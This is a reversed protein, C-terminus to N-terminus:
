DVTILYLNWTIAGFRSYPGLSPEWHPDLAIAYQLVTAKIQDKYPNNSCRSTRVQHVAYPTKQQPLSVGREIRDENSSTRQVGVQSRSQTEASFFFVRTAKKMERKRASTTIWGKQLNKSSTLEMGRADECSPATRAYTFRKASSRPRVQRSSATPFTTTSRSPAFPPSPAAVTTM